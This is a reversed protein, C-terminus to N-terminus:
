WLPHMSLVYPLLLKGASVTVLFGVCYSLALSWSFYDRKLLAGSVVFVGFTNLLEEIRFGIGPAQRMLVFFMGVGFAELVLCIKWLRLRGVNTEDRILITNLSVLLIGKVVIVLTGHITPGTGYRYESVRAAIESIMSFLHTTVAISGLGFILYAVLMGPTDWDLAFPIECLFVAFTSIHFGISVLSFILWWARRRECLSILAVFAFSVAIAVRIQTYEHVFYTTCITVFLPTVYSGFVREYARVKVMLSIAAAALFLAQVRAKLAILSVILLGFLPDKGLLLKQAFTGTSARIMRFMLVYQGYDNSDGRLGAFLIAVSLLAFGCYRSYQPKLWSISAMVFSFILFGAYPM